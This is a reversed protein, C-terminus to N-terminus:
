EETRPSVGGRHRRGKGVVTGLWLFLQWGAFRTHRLCAAWGDQFGASRGEERASQAMEAWDEDGADELLRRAFRIATERTIWGGGDHVIDPALKSHEEQPLSKAAAAAIDVYEGVPQV